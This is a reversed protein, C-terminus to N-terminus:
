EGVEEGLAERHEIIWIYADTETRGPFQALLGQQRIPQITPLFVNDYWSAVAEEYSVDRQQDLGLYYQHVHISDRICM